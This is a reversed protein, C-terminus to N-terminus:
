QYRLVVSQAGIAVVDNVTRDSTPGDKRQVTLKVEFVVDVGSRTESPDIAFKTLKAGEEWDPDAVVVPKQEAPTGGKVWANPVNTLLERAQASDAEPPVVNGCGALALAFLPLLTVVLRRM